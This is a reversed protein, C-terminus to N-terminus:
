RKMVQQRAHASAPVTTTKHTLRDTVTWRESVARQRGDFSASDYM